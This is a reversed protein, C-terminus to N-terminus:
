SYSRAELNNVLLNSCSIYITFELQTSYNENSMCTVYQNEAERNPINFFGLVWVFWYLVIDGAFLVM